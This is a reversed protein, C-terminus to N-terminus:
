FIEYSKEDILIKDLELDNINIIDDFYYYAYNKLDNMKLKVNIM